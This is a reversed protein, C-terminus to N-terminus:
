IFNISSGQKYQEHGCVYFCRAIFNEIWFIYLEQAVYQHIEHQLVINM